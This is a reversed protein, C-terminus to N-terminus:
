PKSTQPKIFFSNFSNKYFLPLILILVVIGFLVGSSDIMVDYISSYRDTVFMQHIEDSFAYLVGVILSIFACIFMKRNFYKINPKNYSLLHIMLFFGLIAFETFHATKRVVLTIKDKIEQQKEYPLKDYNPLFIKIDIGVIKGSLKNSAHSSQASFLFITVMVAITFFLSIFKM